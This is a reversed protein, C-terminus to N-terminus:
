GLGMPARALVMVEVPSFGALRLARAAENATAGTTMVDDFLIARGRQAFGPGYDFASRINKRRGDYTLGAQQETARTKKLGRDIITPVTAGKLLFRLALSPVHFGRRRLESPHSPVPILRPTGETARLQDVFWHRAQRCLARLAPFDAGYKTRRVADSVAGDYEWLANVSDFYPRNQRCRSCEGSGHRPTEFSDMPVQCIACAPAEIAQVTPACISCFGADGVVHGDCGACSLPFFRRFTHHITSSAIPAM